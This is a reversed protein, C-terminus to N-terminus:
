RRHSQAYLAALKGILALMESCYDLYRELGDPALERKPSSATRRSRRTDARIRPSSTCTSSMRSRAFRTCRPLARRRKWRSELRTLAIVGLGVLIAINM